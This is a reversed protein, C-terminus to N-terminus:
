DKRDEQQYNYEVVNTRPKSGARDARSLHMGITATRGPRVVMMAFRSGERMAGRGYVAHGPQWSM